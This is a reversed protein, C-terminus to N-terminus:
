MVRFTDALLQFGSKKSLLLIELGGFLGGTIWQQLKPMHPVFRHSSYGSRDAVVLM